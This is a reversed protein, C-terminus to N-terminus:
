VRNMGILKGDCLQGRLDELQGAATDYVQQDRAYHKAVFDRVEPMDLIGSADAATGKKAILKLAAGKIKSHLGTPLMQRALSNVKYALGGIRKFRLEVNQNSRRARDLAVGTRQSFYDLLEPVLAIPIVHDIVQTGGDFLYDSQRTFFIYQYSPAEVEEAVRDLLRRTIDRLEDAPILTMPREEYQWMLQRLASGFRELPDRVLAFADFRVLYDFEKPFHEKLQALPIHAFDIEGLIPHKGPRGMFIHDPDCARLQHRVSTGACKPIHIFAFEYKPSIIM